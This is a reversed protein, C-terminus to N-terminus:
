RVRGEAVAAGCLFELKRAKNGGMGLGTLDDRKIWLRAGGPLVAGRELPTPLTALRSRPLHGFVSPMIPGPPAGIPMRRGGRAFATPYPPTTGSRICVHGGVPIRDKPALEVLRIPGGELVEDGVFPRPGGDVRRVVADEGRQM